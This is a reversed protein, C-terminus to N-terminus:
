SGMICMCLPYVCIFLSFYVCVSESQDAHECLYLLIYVPYYESPHLVRVCGCMCVWVLTCKRVSGRTCIYACVRECICM